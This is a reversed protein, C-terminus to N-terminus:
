AAGGGNARLWEGDLVAALDSAVMLRLATEEAPLRRALCDRAIRNIHRDGPTATAFWAMRRLRGVARRAREMAAMFGSVDVDITVAVNSTSM